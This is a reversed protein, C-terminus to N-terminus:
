CSDFCGRCHNNNVRVGKRADIAFYPNQWNIENSTTVATVSGGRIPTRYSLINILEVM